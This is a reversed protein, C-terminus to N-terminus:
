DIPACIRTATCSSASAEGDAREKRYDSIYCSHLIRFIWPQFSEGDALSGIAAWAKTATAAVLDEADASNQTLYMAVSFLSDMNDSIHRRFFAKKDYTDRM